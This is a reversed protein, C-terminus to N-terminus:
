FYKKLSSSSLLSLAMMTWGLPTMGAFLGAGEAGAGFLGKLGLGAEKGKGLTTMANWVQKAPGGMQISRDGVKAIEGMNWFPGQRTGSLAVKKGAQSTPQRFFSGRFPRQGEEM